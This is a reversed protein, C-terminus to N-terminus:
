SKVIQRYVTKTEPAPDVGLENALLKRCREYAWLAEARNGGLAHARMLLRHASKENHSWRWGQSSRATRGRTAPRFPWRM